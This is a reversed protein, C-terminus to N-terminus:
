ALSSVDTAESFSFSGIVARRGDEWSEGEKSPGDTVFAGKGSGVNFGELVADERLM